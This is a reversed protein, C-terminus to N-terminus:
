GLKIDHSLKEDYTSATAEEISDRHGSTGKRTYFRDSEIVRSLRVTIQTTYDDDHGTDM